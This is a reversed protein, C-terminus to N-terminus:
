YLIFYIIAVYHNFINLISFGLIAEIVMFILNSNKYYIIIKKLRPFKNQLNYKAKLVYSIVYFFVNLLSLLCVLTLIFVWKSLQLLQPATNSIDLNVLSLIFPLTLSKITNSNSSTSESNLINSYYSECIKQINIIQIRIKIITDL